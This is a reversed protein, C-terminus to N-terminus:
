IAVSSSKIAKITAAIKKTMQMGMKANESYIIFIPPDYKKTHAHIKM